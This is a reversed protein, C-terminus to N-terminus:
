SLSRQLNATSDRATQRHTLCSINTRVGTTAALLELQNEPCEKCGIRAQWIAFDAYRLPLPELPSPQGQAYANYLAALEGVFVSLSWADSVVHHMCVLLIHETQSLVVLTARILAGKALDFPEIAQLQALKKIGIEQESKALNQWELIRLTWNAQTQIIQSATGDVTVFNTRLTEHRAIIEILSQELAARNLNGVLRLAIPINYSASNPELQDLFWLRQQAYSLPLDSNNARPLIPPASHKLDQQQLQEILPALESVTPRVFLERM